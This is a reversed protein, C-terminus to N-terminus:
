VIFIRTLLEEELDRPKANRLLEETPAAYDPTSSSGISSRRSHSIDTRLSFLAILEAITEHNTFIVRASSRM